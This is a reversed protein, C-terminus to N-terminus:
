TERDATELEKKQQQERIKEWKRWIERLSTWGDCKRNEEGRKEDEKEADARKALKEEGTILAIGEQM